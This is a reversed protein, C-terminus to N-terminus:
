WDWREKRVVLDLVRISKAGVIRIHSRALQTTKGVNGCRHTARRARAVRIQRLPQDPRSPYSKALCACPRQRTAACSRMEHCRCQRYNRQPARRRSPSASDTGCGDIACRITLSSQAAPALYAGLEALQLGLTEAWATEPLGEAGFPLGRRENIVDASVIAV